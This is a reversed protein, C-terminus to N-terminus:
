FIRIRDEPAVYLHSEPGIGFAEYWEDFQSVVLNVRLFAPAHRDLELSSRLKEERYKTRWSVAFAIFFEKIEKKVTDPNANRSKLNEKLAELSIAVGGLDAINESLTRYGNVHRDFVKQKGYLEVLAKTIKNYTRNDSKTWWKKKQGQEDYNRGDEDFGHCMEHGIVSGLAGYNWGASGRVNYFPSIMTGYPIMIQNNENFYYANVRYIGEEWYRFRHGIREFLKNTNWAGLTYVNKLLCKSDLGVPPDFEPFSEPKVIAIQMKDVKEIAAIRTSQKLWKTRALRHKAATVLSKAFGPAQKLLEQDGFKEWFLESFADPFYDYVLRVLLEMQPMKAKQGQVVRGFFDYDIEDFPPPLYPISNLIYSRALLLKWYRIPVTHLFGIVTKVWKPCAYFMSKTKWGELGLTEFWVKWPFGPFKKLLKNGTAPYRDPSWTKEVNMVLTREFEYVSELEEIEFLSGLKKLTEKYALMNEPDFYLSYPLGPSQSDVLLELRHGPVVTYQMNFISAFRLKCLTALQFVVDHITRVCGVEKLVSKLYDVSTHQSRSHLASDSLTQLTRHFLTNSKTDVILEKSAEYICRELEESVGFDNEFQPIKTKGLWEGNVWEYFDNGTLPSSSSMLAPAPTAPISCLHDKSQNRKSRKRTQRKGKPDSGM